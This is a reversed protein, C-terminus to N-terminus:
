REREFFLKGKLLFKSIGKIIPLVDIFTVCFLGKKINTKRLLVDKKVVKKPRYKLESKVCTVFQRRPKQLYSGHVKYGNAQTRHETTLLCPYPVNQLPCQM